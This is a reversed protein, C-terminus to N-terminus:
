AGEVFQRSAVKSFKEPASGRKMSFDHAARDFSPSGRMTYGHLVGPFIHLELNGHAGGFRLVRGESM